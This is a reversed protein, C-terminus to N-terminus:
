ASWKGIVNQTQYHYVIDVLIKIQLIIVYIPSYMYILCAM